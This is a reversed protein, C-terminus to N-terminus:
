YESSLAKSNEKFHISLHRSVSWVSLGMKKAIDKIDVQQYFLTLIEIVREEDVYNVPKRKGERKVRESCCKICEKYREGTNKMTFKGENLTEQCSICKIKKPTCFM